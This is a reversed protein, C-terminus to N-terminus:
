VISSPISLYVCVWGNVRCVEWRRAKRLPRCRRRNSSPRGCAFPGWFGGMDGVPLGWYYGGGLIGSVVWGTPVGVVEAQPVNCNPSTPKLWGAQEPTDIKLPRVKEMLRPVFM